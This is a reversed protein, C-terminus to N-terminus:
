RRSDEGFDFGGFDFSRPGRKGFGMAGAGPGRRRGVPGLLGLAHAQGIAPVLRAAEELAELEQARGLDNKVYNRVATHFADMASKVRQRLERAELILKGVEAPDPNDNELLERLAEHNARMKERIGEAKLQEAAARRQRRVFKVLDRMQEPTIDLAKQLAQSHPRRPADAGPEPGPGGGPPPVGQALLMTACATLMVLLKKM